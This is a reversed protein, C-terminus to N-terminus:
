FGGQGKSGKEGKARKKRLEAAQFKNSDLILAELKKNLPSHQVPVDCPPLEIELAKALLVGDMYMTALVPIRRFHRLFATKQETSQFVLNLYYTSDESNAMKAGAKLRAEMFAKLEPKDEPVDELKLAVKRKKIKGKKPQKSGDSFMSVKREGTGVM